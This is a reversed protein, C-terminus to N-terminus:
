LHSQPLFQKNEFMSNSSVNRSGRASEKAQRSGKELLNHCQLRARCTGMAELPGVPLRPQQCKCEEELYSPFYSGKSETKFSQSKTEPSFPVNLTTGVFVCIELSHRWETRGQRGTDGLHQETHLVLCMSLAPTFQLGTWLCSLCPLNPVWLAHTPLSPSSSSTQPGM